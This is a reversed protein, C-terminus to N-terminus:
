LGLGSAAAVAILTPRKFVPKGAISWFEARGAGSMDDIRVVRGLSSDTIYIRDWPDVTLGIPTNLLTARSAPSGYWVMGVGSIDDIRVIRGADRRIYYLRDRGDLVITRPSRVDASVSAYAAGNYSRWGAGNMDDFRVIRSNGTDAVYIRDRSDVAIGGPIRFQGAAEGEGGWRVLNAGSIDDMRVVANAGADVVYIRGRGDVAVGAARTLGARFEARAAGFFGAEYLEVGSTGGGRDFTRFARGKRDIFLSTTAADMAASTWNRGEFDDFRSLAYAGVSDGEDYVYIVADPVSGPFLMLILAAAALITRASM